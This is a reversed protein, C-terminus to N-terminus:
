LVLKRTTVMRGNNKYEYIAVDDYCEEIDDLNTYVYYVAGSDDDESVIYLTNPFGM